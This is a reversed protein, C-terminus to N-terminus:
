ASGNVEKVGDLGKVVLLHVVLDAIEVLGELCLQLLLHGALFLDEVLPPDSEVSMMM